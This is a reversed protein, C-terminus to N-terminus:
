GRLRLAYFHNKKPPDMNSGSVQGSDKDQGKVNPFDRVKHGNKGCGFCNNTGIFCNGYYKKGCKGYTPKKKPSSTGRGKQSKPISVMDDRAKPFKTPVQNSSRKKFRPKKKANRSKRKARTEEVQQAHVMLHSIKMNEHLMASHCEEKLDDSVGIVFRSMEDWTQAVDKLQYTALEAKESTNLKMAYLIKYTEDIFEQPHEEVKSGYFTPPNMRTFDRLYSAMTGIHQNARPVVERNAQSTMSQAQTTVDQAQTTIAQAMQLFASRIEGDMLPPNIPAQDDNSVEELPPVQNGQSPVGANAIEEDLRRAAM